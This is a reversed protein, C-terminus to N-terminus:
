KMVTVAISDIVNASVNKAANSKTPPGVLSTPWILEPIDRQKPSCSFLSVLEALLPFVADTSSVAVLVLLVESGVDDIGNDAVGAGCCVLRLLPM